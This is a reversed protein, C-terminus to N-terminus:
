SPPQESLAFLSTSVEPAPVARRSRRESLRRIVKVSGDDQVQGLYMTLPAHHQVDMRIVGRPGKFSVTGLAGLVKKSM